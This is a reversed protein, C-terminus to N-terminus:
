KRKARGKGPRKFIRFSRSASSHQLSRSRAQPQRQRVSGGKSDLEYFVTSSNGKSRTLPRVSQQARLSTRRRRPGRSQEEKYWYWPLTPTPHGDDTAGSCDQRDVQKQDKNMEAKGTTANDSPHIRSKLTRRYFQNGWGDPRGVPVLGYEEKEHPSRPPTVTNDGAEESSDDDLIIVHDSPPRPFRAQMRRMAERARKCGAQFEPDARLAAMEADSKKYYEHLAESFTSPYEDEAPSGPSHQTDPLDDRSNYLDHYFVLSDM